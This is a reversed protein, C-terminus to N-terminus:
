ESFAPPQASIAQQPYHGTLGIVTGFLLGGVAFVFVLAAHKFYHAAGRKGRARLSLFLPAVPWTAVTLTWYRLVFVREHARWDLACYLAIAWAFL